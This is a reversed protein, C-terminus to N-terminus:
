RPGTSTSSPSKVSCRSASRRPSRLVSRSDRGLALRYFWAYTRESFRQITNRNFKEVAVIALAITAARDSTLDQPFPVDPTACSAARSDQSSCMTTTPRIAKASSTTLRPSIAPRPWSTPASGNVSSTPAIPRRLTSIKATATGKGWRCPSWRSRMPGVPRRRKSLRTPLLRSCRRARQYLRRRPDPLLLLAARALRSPRRHSPGLCSPLGLAGCVSSHADPM